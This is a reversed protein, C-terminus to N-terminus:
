LLTTSRADTDIGFCEHRNGSGRMHAFPSIWETVNHSASRDIYGCAYHLRGAYIIDQPVVASVSFAEELGFIDSTFKGGLRCPDARINSNSPHPVVREM